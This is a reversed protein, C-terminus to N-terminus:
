VINKYSSPSFSFTELTTQVQFNSLQVHHNSMTYIQRAITKKKIPLFMPFFDVNRKGLNLYLKNVFM